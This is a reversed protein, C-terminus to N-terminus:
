KLFIGINRLPVEIIETTVGNSLVLSDAFFEGTLYVPVDENAAAAEPLVGYIKDVNDATVAALKGDVLAVPAHADLAAGATKVATTVPINVGAEFRETINEFTQKTLDMSM